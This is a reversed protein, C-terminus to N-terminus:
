STIINMIVCEPAGKCSSPIINIIVNQNEINRLVRALVLIINTFLSQNRYELAGKSYSLVM